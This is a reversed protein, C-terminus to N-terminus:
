PVQQSVKNKCRNKARKLTGWSCFFSHKRHLPTWFDVKPRAPFHESFSEWFSDIETGKQLWFTVKPPAQFYCLFLYGLTAWITGFIVELPYGNPKLFRGQFALRPWRHWFLTWVHKKAGNQSKNQYRKPLKKSLKKATTILKGRHTNPINLYLVKFVEHALFHIFHRSMPWVTQAGPAEVCPEPRPQAYRPGFVM